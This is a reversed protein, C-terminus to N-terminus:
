QGVRVLKFGRPPCTPWLGGCAEAGRGGNGAEVSPAGWAQAGLARSEDGAGDRKTVQDGQELRRWARELTISESAEELIVM